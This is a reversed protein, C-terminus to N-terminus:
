RYSPFVISPWVRPCKRNWPPGRTRRTPLLHDVSVEGFENIILATRKMSPLSLLHQLITTKGSGLFGTLLSVPLPQEPPKQDDDAM